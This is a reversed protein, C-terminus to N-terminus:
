GKRIPRKKKPPPAKRGRTSDFFSLLSLLWDVGVPEPVRGFFIAVRADEVFVPIIWAPVM